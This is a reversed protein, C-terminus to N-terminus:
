LLKWALQVLKFQSLDLLLSKCLVREQIDVEPNEVLFPNFFETEELVM